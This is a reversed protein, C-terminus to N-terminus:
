RNVKVDKMIFGSMPLSPIRIMSYALDQEPVKYTIQKALFSLSKVMIKVTAWEGACRHGKDYDGGGQPIFSFPSEKWDEFREPKFLEPDEWVAPDHNTGYLDLLVMTGKKFAYDKWTFDKRAKAGLFPAFPYFRRVEQVFQLTFRDDGNEMRERVDPYDHLALAGFTVLWSVAVIPRIINILEVAATHLDLLEGDLEKHFSIIAAASGEPPTISGARIEEIIGKIWEECKKRSDRGRKYREGVGGISDVMQGLQVSRMETEEEKLPVGAWECATRCLVEQSEDFLVIRDKQEWATGQRTWIEATLEELRALNEHTMISMFMAKRHHHAEGDMVQVGGEGFLAKQIRKPIANGREFLENDYFLEAAEEGSISIARQGLLRTEFIDSDMRERRRGMYQYGEALVSITNDLVREKPIDRNASVM